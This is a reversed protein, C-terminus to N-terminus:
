MCVMLMTRYPAGCLCVSGCSYGKQAFSCVFFLNRMNPIEEPLKLPICINNEQITRLGCRQIIPGCKFCSHKHHTDSCTDKADPIVNILLRGQTYDWGLTVCQNLLVCGQHDVGDRCDCILVMMVWFIHTLYTFAHRNPDNGFKFSYFLGKLLKATLNWLSKGSIEEGDFGTSTFLKSLMCATQFFFFFFCIAPVSAAHQNWSGSSHKCHFVPKSSVPSIDTNHQM